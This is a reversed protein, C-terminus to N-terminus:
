SKDLQPIIVVRRNVAHDKESNGNSLPKSEGYAITRLRGYPVDKQLLYDKIALARAESLLKNYAEDARKDAHTEILYNYRDCRAATDALQDLIPKVAESIATKNTDFVSLNMLWAQSCSEPVEAANSVLMPRLESEAKKYDEIFRDITELVANYTWLGRDNCSDTDDGSGWTAFRYQRNPDRLISSSQQFSAWISSRCCDHSEDIKAHEAVADEGALKAKLADIDNGQYAPFFTLSPQGPTSELEEESLMRLGADTLRQRIQEVLDSKMDTLEYKEASGIVYTTDVRVGELGALSAYNDTFEESGVELRDPSAPPYYRKEALVSGSFLIAVLALGSLSNKFYGYFM